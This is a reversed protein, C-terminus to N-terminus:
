EQPALFYIPRLPLLYKDEDTLKGYFEQWLSVFRDFDILEIHVHSHLATSKADSTFGGSSVVMGVDGDKQLLGMLQRVEQVTVPNSPRHKVQIKIRPSVTGLPDRYAIVDVGGDKGRPAIFPTFYGMGRLLAAVLDQFEYPNKGDVFLKLGDVAKRQIEDISQEQSASVEEANENTVQIDKKRDGAWKKYANRAMNFLANEGFKLAEEGEPTIHWVGNKKILFGAKTYEISYFHLASQWRVYGSNKYIEKDWESLTVRKEVQEMLQRIAM